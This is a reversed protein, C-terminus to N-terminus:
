IWNMDERRFGISAWKIRIGTTLTGSDLQELTLAM